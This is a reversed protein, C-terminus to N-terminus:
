ILEELILLCAGTAAAAAFYFVFLQDTPTLNIEYGFQQQVLSSQFPWTGVNNSYYLSVFKNHLPYIAASALRPFILSSTLRGWVIYDENHSDSCYQRYSLCFSLPYMLRKNRQQQRLLNRHIDCLHLLRHNRYIILYYIQMWLSQSKKFRYSLWLTERDAAVCSM